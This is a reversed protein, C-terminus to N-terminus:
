PVTPDDTGNIWYEPIRDEAALRKLIDLVEASPRLREQRGNKMSAAKMRPKARGNSGSKRPSKKKTKSTTTAM